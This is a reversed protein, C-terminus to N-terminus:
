YRTGPPRQGPEGSRDPGGGPRRQGRGEGLRLRIQQLESWQESSLIQRVALLMEFRENELAKRTNQFTAYAARVEAADFQERNVTEALDLGALEVKAKLDIMRRAHEYVAARIDTVQEESLGIAAALRQNEWWKGPPLDLESGAVSGSVAFVVLMLLLKKM